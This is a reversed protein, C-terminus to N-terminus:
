AFSPPSPVVPLTVTWACGAVLLRAHEVGAIHDKMRMGIM